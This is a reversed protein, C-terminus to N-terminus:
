VIKRETKSGIERERECVKKSLVCVGVELFVYTPFGLVKKDKDKINM